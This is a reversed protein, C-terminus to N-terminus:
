TATVARAAAISTPLTYLYTLVYRTLQEISKAHESSPDEEGHVSENGDIRLQHAWDKLSQTLKGEAALKDIRKELKWAEVEPALDKLGWELAKRFQACASSPSLALVECGEKFAKAVRDPAHAPVEISPRQPWVAAVRFTGESVAVDGRFDSPSGGSASPTVDAVEMLLGSNCAPCIGFCSWQRQTKPFQVSYHIHFAAKGARCHPCDHTFVAM